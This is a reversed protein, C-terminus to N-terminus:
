ALMEKVRGAIRDAKIKYAEELPISFPIPIREGGLRAVPVGLTEAVEAAVEGGFGGVRVAEHVVLLKGTRAASNMVADRDWPYLTRLDIVEASIGDAALVDAAEAAVGVQAAWSVITIDSGARVTAAVGLPIPEQDNEDVEGLMGWLGKHEMYVVPDDCRISAKLLGRNNAPTSPTVVVLGPTHAYWAEPSQSHQAAIGGRIGIPMRAVMPVRAQGGFMYRAKAAQNVLESVSCMAFDSFRMEAIPRTGALAAGVAAGMITSESIPTDVIRDPGFEAQLDNYQGAMGGEYGLDEGLAWVKPDRAMEEQLGLRAAQAYTMETM